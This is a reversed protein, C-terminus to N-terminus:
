LAAMLGVLVGFVLLVVAAGVVSGPLPQRIAPAWAGPPPAPSQAAVPDAAPHAPPDPQVPELNPQTSDDM